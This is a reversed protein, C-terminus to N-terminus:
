AQQWSHHQSAAHRRAHGTATTCTTALTDTPKELAGKNQVQVWSCGQLYHNSGTVAVSAPRASQLARLVLAAAGGLAGAWM